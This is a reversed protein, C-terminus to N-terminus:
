LAIKNSLTLIVTPRILSGERLTYFQKVYGSLKGLVHGKQLRWMHLDINPRHNRRRELCQRLALLEARIGEYSAVRISDMWTSRETDSTAALMQCLGGDFVLMFMLIKYAYLRCYIDFRGLYFPYHGDAIFPATAMPSDLRVQCQELVIVGM